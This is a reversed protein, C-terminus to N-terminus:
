GFFRYKIDQNSQGIPDVRQTIAAYINEGMYSLVIKRLEFCLDCKEQAESRM